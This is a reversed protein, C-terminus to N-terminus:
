GQSEIILQGSYKLHLHVRETKILGAEIRAISQLLPFAISLSADIPIQEIPKDGEEKVTGDHRLSFSCISSEQEHSFLLAVGLQDKRFYLDSLPAPYPTEYVALLVPRKEVLVQTYAEVLGMAFTDDAACISNAPMRSQVGISMYGAPANHVSNSFKTPSVADNPDWMAKCIADVIAGEGVSSGFVLSMQEPSYRSSTIAQHAIGLALKTTIIARRRENPPLLQPPPIIAESYVFADPNLFVEKGEAWNKMGPGILGVSHIYVQSM